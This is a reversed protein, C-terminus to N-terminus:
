TGTAWYITVVSSYASIKSGIYAAVQYDFQQVEDPQHEAVIDDNYSTSAGTYVDKWTSVWSSGNWQPRRQLKYGEADTSSNWSAAAAANADQSVGLGTPTAPAYETCLKWTGGANYWVKTKESWSGSIKYWVNVAEKWNGSIKKYTAKGM